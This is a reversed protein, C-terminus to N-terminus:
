PPTTSAKLRFVKLTGCEYVIESVCDSFGEQEEIIRSDSYLYRAGMTTYMDKLWLVPLHNNWFIYGSKDAIYPLIALSEDNIFVAIDEKTGIEELQDRCNFFDQNFYAYKVDWYDKEQNWCVFPMALLLMGVLLKVILKGHCAQYLTFIIPLMLIPYFPMLYYEHGERIVNLVYFFYMFLVLLPIFFYVPRFSILRRKKLIFFVGAFFLILAPINLIEMPFNNYMQNKLFEKFLPWGVFNQIFGETINNDKWQPIVMGYWAMVPLLALAKASVYSRLEKWRTPERTFMIEIAKILSLIGLLIFPLKALGALAIFLAAYLLDSRKGSKLHRFFFLVYYMGFCLALIDPMISTSNYFFTPLFAFIWVALAAIDYNETLTHALKFVAFLTLLSILYVMLRMVIIHEGTVKEVMAISWQMIPFEYRVINDKNNLYPQRPNLINADHRVFYRINWATKSQRWTDKGQIPLTFVHLHLVTSVLVAALVILFARINKM